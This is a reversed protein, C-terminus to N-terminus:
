CAVGDHLADEWADSNMLALMVEAATRRPMMGKARETRPELLSSLAGRETIPRRGNNVM